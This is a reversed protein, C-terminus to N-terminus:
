CRRYLEKILEKFDTYEIINHGEDHVYKTFEVIKPVDVYKYLNNDYFLEQGGSLVLNGNNIVYM